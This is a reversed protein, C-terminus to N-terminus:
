RISRVNGSTLAPPRLTAIDTTRIEIVRGDSGGNGDSMHCRVGAVFRGAGHGRLGRRPCSARSGLGLYVLRPGIGTALRGIHGSLACGPSGGCGRM